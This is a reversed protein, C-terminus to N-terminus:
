PRKDELEYEKVLAGIENNFIEKKLDKKPNSM